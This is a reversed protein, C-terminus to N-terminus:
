IFFLQLYPRFKLYRETLFLLFVQSDLLIGFINRTVVVTSHPNFHVIFFFPFFEFVCKHMKAEGKVIIIFVICGPTM